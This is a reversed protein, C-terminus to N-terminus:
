FYFVRAAVNMVIGGRFRPWPVKNKKYEGQLQRNKRERCPEITKQNITKRKQISLFEGQQSRNKGVRDNAKM